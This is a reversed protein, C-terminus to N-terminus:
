PVVTERPNQKPTGSVVKRIYIIFQNCLELEVGGTLRTLKSIVVVSTVVAVAEDDVDAGADLVGDAKAM